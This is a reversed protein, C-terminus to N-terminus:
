IQRQAIRPDPSVTRTAVQFGHAACGRLAGLELAAHYYSNPETDVDSLHVLAIQGSTRGALNRAQVNVTFNLADVARRVKERLSPRVNPGDNLVRSVSTRSVGALSAVDDITPKGRNNLRPRDVGM